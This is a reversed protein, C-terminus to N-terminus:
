KMIQLERLSHFSNKGIIIHDVVEIGLLEGASVLRETITIDDESPLPDGSPHNHVVIVQAARLELAPAFVERPHVLSATLTGVSIIQSALLHRRANLYLGLLHEQRKNHLYHAVKYVDASNHIVIASDKDRIRAALAFAAVVCAARSMGVGKIEVLEKARVTSLEALSKSKLVRQALDLVSVGRYGSGLLIALLEHDQLSDTGNEFLKERPQKFSPLNKLKVM